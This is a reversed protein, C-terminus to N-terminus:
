KFVKYVPSSHRILVGGFNKGGLRPAVIDVVRVKAREAESLGVYQAPTLVEVSVPRADLVTVGERGQVAYGPWDWRGAARAEERKERARRWPVEPYVGLYLGGGDWLKYPKAQRKADVVESPVAAQDAQTHRCRTQHYAGQLAGLYRWGYRWAQIIKLSWWTCQRVFPL